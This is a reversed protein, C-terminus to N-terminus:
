FNLRDLNMDKYYEKTTVICKSVFDLNESFNFSRNWDDQPDTVCFTARQAIESNILDSTARSLRQYVSDTFENLVTPDNIQSTNIGNYDNEFVQQCQVFRLLFCQM